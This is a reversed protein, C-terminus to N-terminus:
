YVSFGVIMGAQAETIICEDLLYSKVEDFRTSIDPPNGSVNVDPLVGSVRGLGFGDLDHVTEIESFPASVFDEATVGNRLEPFLRYSM